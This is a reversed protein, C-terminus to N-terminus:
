LQLFFITIFLITKTATKTILVELMFLNASKIRNESSTSYKGASNYKDIRDM